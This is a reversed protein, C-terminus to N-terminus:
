AAVAMAESAKHVRPFLEGGLLDLARMYKARDLTGIDTWCLIEDAGFQRTIRLLKEACYDVDGCILGFSERLKDFNISLAADRASGYL